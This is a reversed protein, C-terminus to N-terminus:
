IDDWDMRCWYAAERGELAGVGLATLASVAGPRMPNTGRHRGTVDALSMLVGSGALANQFSSGPVPSPHPAVQVHQSCWAARFTIHSSPVACRVGYSQLPTLHSNPLTQPVMIPKRQVLSKTAPDNLLWWCGGDGM